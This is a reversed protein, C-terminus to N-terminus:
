NVKKAIKRPKLARKGLFEWTHAQVEAALDDGGAHMYRMALEPSAWGGFQMLKELDRTAAYFWTAWTHRLVHCSVHRVGARKAARKLALNVGDYSAWPEGAANLFVPDDPGRRQPMADIVRQPLEVARDAESKTIDAWLTVRQAAPSVDSWVLDLAETARAGTGLYFTVLARTAPALADLLKEAEAPTLWVLRRKGAHPRQWERPEAKKARVAVKWAAIFPTHVQRRRTADSADPYLELAAKDLAAQDITALKSLGFREILPTMYRGEGGGALYDAAAEAFTAVAQPGKVYREFIDKEAKAALVKAHEASRTRASEDVRQGLYTGRLHYIGSPRKYHKIPM